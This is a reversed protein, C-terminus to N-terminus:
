GSMVVDGCTDCALVPHAMLSGRLYGVTRLGGDLCRLCPRIPVVDSGVVSQFNEAAMVRRLKKSQRGRVAALAQSGTEIEYSYRERVLSREKLSRLLEGGLKGNLMGWRSYNQM